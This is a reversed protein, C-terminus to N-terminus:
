WLRDPVPNLVPDTIEAQAEVLRLEATGATATAQLVGYVSGAAHALAVPAAGSYLYIGLFVAAFLDGAGNPRGSLPVAPVRVACGEPTTAATSVIEDGDELGTVVVLRTGGELLERSAAGVNAASRVEVGTLTTLEFGNPLLIDAEGAHREFFAAVPADVFLGRDTDGMVPDCCWIANPNRSRVLDVADLIARGTAASGIYGSLIADCQGLLGETDLREVIARITEASTVDGTPPGYGTHTAFNVTNIPWVEHGLRQLAFEAARNGVPGYTVHSQISLITM